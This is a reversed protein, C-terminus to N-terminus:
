FCHMQFEIESGDAVFDYDRSHSMGLPTSWHYYVYYSDGDDLNTTNIKFSSSGNPITETDDTWSGDESQVYLVFPDGACENTANPTMEDPENWDWAGDCLEWSGDRSNSYSAGDRGESDITTVTTANETSVNRTSILMSDSESISFSFDGSSRSFYMFGDSTINTGNDIVLGSSTGSDRIHWGGLDCTQNGSNYLEFWDDSSYTYVETITVNSLTCDQSTTPTTYASKAAEDLEKQFNDNMIGTQLTLAPTAIMLAIMFIAEIAKPKASARHM